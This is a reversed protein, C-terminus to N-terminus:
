RSNSTPQAVSLRADFGIVVSRLSHRTTLTQSTSTRRHLAEVVFFTPKLHQIFKNQENQIANQNIWYELIEDTGNM